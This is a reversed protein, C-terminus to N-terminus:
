GARDDPRGVDKLGSDQGVGGGHNETMVRRAGVGRRGSFIARHRGAEDLPPVQETNPDEIMEDDPILGVPIREM